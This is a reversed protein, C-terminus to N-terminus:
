IVEDVENLTIFIEEKKNSNPANEESSSIEFMYKTLVKELVSRLGRAGIKKKMVISVIKELADPSFNLSIGDMDFLLKYQKLLANKPEMLVQLMDEKTLENLAVLIPLRGIFEPILGFKILDEHLVDSLVHEKRNANEVKNFGIAYGKIRKKVIKELGCFAGGCIFLIDTTDIQIYDQSPHKRGGHPPISMVTGEMMKLLGQQVGEGSVDRTISMNESKKSIKDIEDIYIIGKEARKVNNDADQLLRLLVNEVDDGVYGSETITTADAIAFPINLFKALTRALLTKGSGTPGLLLINSKDMDIDFFETGKYHDEHLSYKYKLRKYHNYVAISLLIKAEEQGIVYRDLFEKVIKPSYLCISQFDDDYSENADSSDLDEFQKLNVPFDEISIDSHHSSNPYCASYCMAVCNDCIFGSKGAVIKEASDTTRDCFSCKIIEVETM